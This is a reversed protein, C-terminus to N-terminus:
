KEVGAKPGGEPESETQSSAGCLTVTVSGHGASPTVNIWVGQGTPGSFRFNETWPCDGANPGDEGSFTIACNYGNYIATAQRVWSGADVYGSLILYPWISDDIVNFYWTRGGDGTTNFCYEFTESFCFRLFPHLFNSSSEANFGSFGEVIN